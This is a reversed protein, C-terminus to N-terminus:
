RKRLSRRQMSFNSNWSNGQSSSIRMSEVQRLSIPLLVRRWNSRPRDTARFIIELHMQVIRIKKLLDIQM